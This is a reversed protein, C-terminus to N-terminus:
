MLIDSQRWLHAFYIFLKSRKPSSAQIIATVIDCNTQLKSMRRERRKLQRVLRTSMQSVHRSLDVLLNKLDKKGYDQLVGRHLFQHQRGAIELPMSHRRWHAFESTSSCETFTDSDFSDHRHDHWRDYIESLLGDVISSNRQKEENFFGPENEKSEFNAYPSWPQISCSESEVSVKRHTDDPRGQSDYLNSYMANYQNFRPDIPSFINGYLANEIKDADAM